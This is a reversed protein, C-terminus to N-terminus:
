APHPLAPHPRTPLSLTATPKCIAEEANVFEWVTESSLTSLSQDCVALADFVTAGCLANESEKHSIRVQVISPMHTHATLSDDRVM